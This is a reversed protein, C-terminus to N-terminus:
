VGKSDKRNTRQEIKHTANKEDRKLLRQLEFVRLKRKRSTGM